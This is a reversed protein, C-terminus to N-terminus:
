LINSSSFGEFQLKSSQKTLLINSTDLSNFMTFVTTISFNESSFRVFEFLFLEGASVDAFENENEVFCLINFSGIYTHIAITEM